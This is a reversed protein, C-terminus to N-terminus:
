QLALHHTCSSFRQTSLKRVRPISGKMRRYLLSKTHVKSGSGSCSELYCSELVKDRVEKDELTTLPRVRRRALMMILERTFAPPFVSCSALHAQLVDAPSNVHMVVLLKRLLSDASTGDYADKVYSGSPPKNAHLSRAMIASLVERLFM